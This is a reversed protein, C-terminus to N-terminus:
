GLGMWASGNRNGEDKCSLDEAKIEVCVINVRYMVRREEGLRQNANSGVKPRGKWRDTEDLM